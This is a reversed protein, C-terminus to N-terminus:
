RFRGTWYDYLWKGSIVDAVLVALGFAIWFPEGRIDIIDLASLALIMTVLGVMAMGISVHWRDRLAQSRAKRYGSLVLATAIPLLGAPILLWAIATLLPTM